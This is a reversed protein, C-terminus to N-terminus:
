VWVGETLVDRACGSLEMELQGNKWLEKNLNFLLQTHWIEGRYKERYLEEMIINEEYPGASFIRETLLYIDEPETIAMRELDKRKNDFWVAYHECGAQLLGQSLALGAELYEDLYGVTATSAIQMDWFVVVPNGVPLSYEKVMLEDTRASLKWHISQMRDGGHYERIQFVESPDDGARTKDYEESDDMYNRTSEQLFVAAEYYEPLVALTVKESVKMKRSFIRFIDYIRVEKIELILLGCHESSIEKTIRTRRGYAMGWLVAQETRDYFHNRVTFEVRIRPLPIRHKMEIEIGAQVPQNKEAVGISLCPRIQMKRVAMQLLLFSIVPLFFELVAMGLLARSYYLIGLYVTVLWLFLYILKGKM